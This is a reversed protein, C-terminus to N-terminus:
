LESKPTARRAIHAAARNRGLAQLHEAIAADRGPEDPDERAAAELATLAEDRSGRETADTAVLDLLGLHRYRVEDRIAHAWEAYTDEPLLEGGYLALAAYALHVAHAGRASRVRNTAALFERVDVWAPVLRLRDEERVVIEGAAARLRTLVQRLRQRAADAPADPFLLELVADVPLGHEHVALIRVLEGPMGPPLDLSHGSSDTVGAAGFLRVAVQRGDLMLARAAGSGAREGLPALASVLLPEGVRAIEVSGCAIAQQLARATLEGAGARGARFTAWATLLTHRWVVRKELWEGRALRQLDDLAQHPDGGRARMVALTQMVEENDDGGRERAADFYRQAEDSVGLRDLLEACELLFSTGIHGKFWDMESTAREAEFLLREAARADGRGAAIRARGWAIDGRAKDFGDGEALVSGRDLAQEAEDFRGLDVLVDAYSALAGPLRDSGSPYTDLAEKILTEALTVDGHQYCGSYGRRLLASGQWERNGLAAFREAAEAFARNSERTAEETGVWAWAQGSALMARALAIEHSPEAETRVQQVLALAEDLGRSRGADVAREALLELRWERGAPAPAPVGSALLAELRDLAAERESYRGWPELAWVHDLLAAPDTM